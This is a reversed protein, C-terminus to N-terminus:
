AARRGQSSNAMAHGASAVPQSTIPLIAQVIAYSITGTCYVCRAQRILGHAENVTLRFSRLCLPCSGLASPQEASSGRELDLWLPILAERTVSSVALPSTMLAFLHKIGSAKEHFADAAIGTPVTTGSYAGSTAIVHIEPYLRRVVSLLEFGSMGPMNLDSLLVDPRADRILRLAAFGEDATRVSYGQTEFIQSLLTRTLSEDDVILLSLQKEAM